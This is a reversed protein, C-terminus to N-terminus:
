LGSPLTKVGQKAANTNMFEAAKAKNTKAVEAMRAAFAREQERM